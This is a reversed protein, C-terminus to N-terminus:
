FSLAGRNLKSTVLTILRLDLIYRQENSPTTYRTYHVCRPEDKRTSVGGSSTTVNAPNFNLLARFVNERNLRHALIGYQSLRPHTKFQFSFDPTDHM